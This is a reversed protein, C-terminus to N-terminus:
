LTVGLKSEVMAKVEAVSDLGGLVPGILKNDATLFYFTPLKTVSLATGQVTFDPDALLPYKVGRGIAQKLALEVYFDNVDIGILPVKPYQEHFAQLAPMEKRCPACAAQWFNIVLPGQLNGLDVPTGGGLCQLTLAPLPGTTTLTETDIGGSATSSESPAAPCDEIGAAKKEAVMSPTAVDVKAPPPATVKVGSCATLALLAFGVILLRRM